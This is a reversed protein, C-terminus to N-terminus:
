KITICKLDKFPREEYCWLLTRSIWRVKDFREMFNKCIHLIFIAIRNSSGDVHKFDNLACRFIISLNFICLLIMMTQEVEKYYIRLLKIPKYPKYSILPIVKFFKFLFNAYWSNSFQIVAFLFIALEFLSACWRSMMLSIAVWFPM